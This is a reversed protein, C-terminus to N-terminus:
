TKAEILAPVSISIPRRNYYLHGDIRWCYAHRSAQLRNRGKQRRRLAPANATSAALIGLSVAAAITMSEWTQIKTTLKM